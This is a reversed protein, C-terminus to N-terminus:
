TRGDHRKMLEANGTQDHKEGLANDALQAASEGQMLMRARSDALRSALFAKLLCMNSRWTPSLRQLFRALDPFTAQVPISEIMVYLAAKALEPRSTEFVAEGLAGTDATQAYVQETAERVVGICEGFAASIM